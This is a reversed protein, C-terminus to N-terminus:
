SVNESYESYGSRDMDMVNGNVGVVHLGRQDRVRGCAYVAIMGQEVSKDMGEFHDM